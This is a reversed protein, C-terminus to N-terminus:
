RLGKIAQGFANKGHSCRWLKWDKMQAGADDFADHALAIAEDAPKAAIHVRPFLLRHAADFAAPFLHQRERGNKSPPARLSEVVAAAEARAIM